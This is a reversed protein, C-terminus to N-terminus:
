CLHTTFFSRHSFIARSDRDDSEIRWGPVVVFASPPSHSPPLLLLLLLLLLALLSSPPSPLALSSRSKGLFCSKLPSGTRSTQKVDSPSRSRSRRVRAHRYRFTRSLNQRPTRVPLRSWDVGRGGCRDGRGWDWVGVGVGVGVRLGGRGKGRGSALPCKCSRDRRQSPRRTTKIM